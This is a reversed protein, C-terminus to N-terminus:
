LEENEQKEGEQENEQQWESWQIAQNIGEKIVIGGALALGGLTIALLIGAALAGIGM